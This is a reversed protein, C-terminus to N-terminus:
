KQVGTTFINPFGKGSECDSCLIQRMYATNRGGMSLDDQPGRSPNEYLRIDHVYYESEM